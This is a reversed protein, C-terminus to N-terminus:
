DSIKVGDKFTGTLLSLVSGDVNYSVWYGERKDNKYDGKYALQGDDWYSVWYGERLGNKFSRQGWGEVEGTFPVDTFKKYYTGERYVLDGM